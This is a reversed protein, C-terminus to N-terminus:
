DLLFIIQPKNVQSDDEESSSEIYKTVKTQKKTGGFVNKTVQKKRKALEAEYKKQEKAAVLNKEPTDTLIASKGCKRGGSKTKRPKAKPFGLFAKPSVFGGMQGSHNQNENNIPKPSTEVFLCPDQTPTGPNEAIEASTLPGPNCSSVDMNETVRDTVASGFFDADVFIQKNFPFIGSRRFGATINSPTMARMHATSFCEAIQYITMPIGPNLLMWKDVAENYYAKLPGYITLDLPQIKHSCHPPLTLITVGNQKAMELVKISIHSEHNDYILLTPNEKSSRTHKVFHEIVFPFQETTMWGTTSALGLTGNPAGNIMHQKFNKRPFLMVPPIFTGMASVICVCTVLQGREASTCQNLQKLGKKAIVKKPKQVTTLGTEDLNFIRSGDVLQPYRNFISELNDFFLSVNHKNFSTLRSLSCAEPKRISLTRTRHLFGRMWELGAAKNEVWSRPIELNNRVAMEYAVKRLTSTSLGYAMKSCIEAYEALEREQDDTFVRRVDYHPTTKINDPNEKAHKVYRHLTQFPVHTERAAERISLKSEVVLKIAAEMHEAPTKGIKREKNRPRVMKDFQFRIFVTM